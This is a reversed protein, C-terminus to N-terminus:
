TSLIYEVLDRLQTSGTKRDRGGGGEGFFFGEWLDVVLISHLVEFIM